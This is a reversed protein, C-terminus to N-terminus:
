VPKIRIGRFGNQCKGGRGLSKSKSIPPYIRRITPYVTKRFVNLPYEQCGKLRCFDNLAAYIERVTTNRGPVLEVRERMFDHLIEDSSCVKRAAVIRLTRLVEKADHPTCFQRLTEQGPSLAKSAIVNFLLQMVSEDSQVEWTKTDARERIFRGREPDYAIAFVQMLLHSWLIPNLKCHGPKRGRIVLNGHANILREVSFMIEIESPWVLSWFSLQVVPGESLVPPSSRGPDCCYIPTLSGASLIEIGNFKQTIPLYDTSRLFLVDGESGSTVLSHKVASNAEIFATLLDFNQFRIGFLNDSERGFCVSLDSLRLDRLRHPSLAQDFIVDETAGASPKRNIESTVRLQVRSFIWCIDRLLLSSDIEYNSVFYNTPALGSGFRPADNARVSNIM